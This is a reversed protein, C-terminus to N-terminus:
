HCISAMLQGVLFLPSILWYNLSLSIPYSSVYYEYYPNKDSLLKESNGIPNLHNQFVKQSIELFLYESRETTRSLTKQSILVESLLM